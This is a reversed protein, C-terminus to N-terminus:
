EMQFNIEARMAVSNLGFWVQNGFHTGQEKVTLIKGKRFHVLKFYKLNYDM